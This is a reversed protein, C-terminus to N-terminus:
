PVDDAEADALRRALEAGSRGWAAAVDVRVDLLESATLGLLRAAGPRLRVGAASAATGRQATTMPGVLYLRGAVWVLDTCGDPLVRRGLEGHRGRVIWGCAVRERLAPPPPLETYREVPVDAHHGIRGPGCRRGHRRDGRRGSLLVRMACSSANPM